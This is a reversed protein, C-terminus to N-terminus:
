PNVSTDGNIEMQSGRGSCALEIRAGAALDLRALADFQNSGAIEPHHVLFAALDRAVALRQALDHHVAVRHHGAVITVRFARGLRNAITPEM